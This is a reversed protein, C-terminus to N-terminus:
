EGMLTLIMDKSLWIIGITIIVFIVNLEKDNMHKGGIRM